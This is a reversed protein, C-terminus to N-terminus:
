VMEGSLNTCRRDNGPAVKELVEQDACSEMSAESKSAMGPYFNFYLRTNLAYPWQGCIVQTHNTVPPHAAKGM